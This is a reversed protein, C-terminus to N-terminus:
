ITRNAGAVVRAFSLVGVQSAGAKRLQRAIANVTSGTTVVDDILIITRDLFGLMMDEDIVFAGRVNEDRQRANLGVQQRTYKVRRVLKQAVQNNQHKAIEYALLSSQNYRRMWQRRAHLPVPVLVDNKMLKDPVAQVIMQGMFRALEQHDSYKLRSVLRQAVDDYVVAARAWDYDPPSAIAEASRADPGLNYDFPVGLVPCLPQGITRMKAWCPGCLANAREIPARCNACQPPFVWDIGRAFMLSTAAGTYDLMSKRPTEEPDSTLLNERKLWKVELKFCALVQTWFILGLM